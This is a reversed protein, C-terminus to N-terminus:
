GKVSVRRASILESIRISPISLFGLKTFPHNDIFITVNEGYKLLQDVSTIFM